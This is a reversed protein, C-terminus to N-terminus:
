RDACELKAARTGVGEPRAIGALPAISDWVVVLGVVDLAADKQVASTCVIDKPEDLYGVFWRLIMSGRKSNVHVGKYGAPNIPKVRTEDCLLHIITRQM